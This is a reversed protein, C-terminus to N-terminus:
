ENQSYGPSKAAARVLSLFQAQTATPVWGARYTLGIPRASDPLDLDLPVILGLQVELAAQHLSLITVYDGRALLGRLMIMSSSVIRVPTNEMQGIGLKRYLYDGTPTDRPPAIWPYPLVDNLTLDVRGALPHDPGAVVALPDSFLPEQVVDDAPAPDRLAGILLDLDGQRLARLLEGYPGDVNRIQVTAKEGLFSDIAAPLIMTRSLPMSGVTIRTSDEGKLHSLEDFGQRLEARALRVVRAFVEGARTLEVGKRTASFLPLAALRELDRGARHISPQSLGTRRAAISFSGSEGIAVLARLQAATANRYFDPKPRQDKQREKQRTRQRMDVQVAERAGQALHDFMRAVRAFFLKGAPTLFMGGAQRDFLTVALQRELGAIAQTVAPQSRHVKHAAASIGQEQAVERFALLHRINPFGDIKEQM